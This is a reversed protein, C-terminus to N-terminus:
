SSKHKEFDTNPNIGDYRFTVKFILRLIIQKFHFSSELGLWSDSFILNIGIFM